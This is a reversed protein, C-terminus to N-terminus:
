EKNAGADHIDDAKHVDPFRLIKLFTESIWLWGESTKKKNWKEKM